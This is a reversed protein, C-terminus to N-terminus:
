SHELTDGRIRLMNKMHYSEILMLINIIAEMQSYQDELRTHFMSNHSSHGYSLTHFQNSKIVMMIDSYNDM